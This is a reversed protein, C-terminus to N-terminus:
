LVLGFLKQLKTALMPDGTVRLKGQFYARMAASHDTLMEAFTQASCALTCQASDGSAFPRCAPAPAALDVLWDGGSEGEVTFRYVAGVERAREPNRALAKPLLDDFLDRATTVAM